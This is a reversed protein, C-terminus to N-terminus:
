SRLQTIKKQTLAPFRDDMLVCSPVLVCDNRSQQFTMDLRSNDDAQTITQEGGVAGLGDSSNARIIYVADSVVCM